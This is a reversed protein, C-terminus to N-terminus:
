ESDSRRVLKIQFGYNALKEEIEKSISRNKRYGSVMDSLLRAETPTPEDLMPENTKPIVKVEANLIVLEKANDAGFEFAASNKIRKIVKNKLESSMLLNGDFLESINRFDSWDNRFAQTGLQGIVYRTSAPCASLTPIYNIYGLGQQWKGSKEVLIRLNDFLDLYRDELNMHQLLNWGLKRQQVDNSGIIDMFSEWEEDTPKDQYTRIFKVLEATSIFKTSNNYKDESDKIDRIDRGWATTFGPPILDKFDELYQDADVSTKVSKPIQMMACQQTQENMLVLMVKESSTQWNYVTEFKMLHDSVLVDANDAKVCRKLPVKKDKVMNSLLLAPFTSDSSIYVKDKPKITVHSPNYQTSAMFDRMEEYDTSIMWGGASPPYNYFRYYRELARTSLDLRWLEYTNATFKNSPVFQIM